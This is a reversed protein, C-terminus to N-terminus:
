TPDGAGPAAMLASTWGDDDDGEEDDLLASIEQFSESDLAALPFDTASYAAGQDASRCSEVLRRLAEAMAKALREITSRHHAGASYNFRLHLCGGSVAGSIELLHPRGDRPDMDPGAPEGTVVFVAAESASGADLQGLYNFSVEAEPAQGLARALEPDGSLYRLLGYGIGRGPVRRLQEKVAALAAACDASPGPDVLVPYQTTFWGVTRSLDVDDFL